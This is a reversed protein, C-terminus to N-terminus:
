TFTTGSSRELSRTLRWLQLVAAIRLCMFLARHVADFYRYRGAYVCRFDMFYLRYRCRTM